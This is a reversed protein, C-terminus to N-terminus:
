LGTSPSIIHSFSSEGSEREREREIEEVRESEKKFSSFPLSVFIYQYLKQSTKKDLFKGDKM